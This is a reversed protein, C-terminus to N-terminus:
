KLDKKNAPRYQKKQASEILMEVIKGKNNVFKYKQKNAKTKGGPILVIEKTSDNNEPENSEEDIEIIDDIEITPRDHGYVKKYIQNYIDDKIDDIDGIFKRFLEDTYFQIIDGDLGDAMMQIFDPKGIKDKLEFKIKITYNRKFKKFMKIVEDEESTIQQIPQQVAQQQVPRPNAIPNPNLGQQSRYKIIKDKFPDNGTLEMQQQRIYEQESTLGNEDIQKLPKKTINKNMMEQIAQDDNIDIPKNGYGQNQIQEQTSHAANYNERMIQKQQELSMTGTQQQTQQQIQHTDSNEVELDKINDPIWGERRQPADIMGTTNVTKIKEFGEIPTITNFFDDANVSNSQSQTPQQPIIAQNQSEVVHTPEVDNSVYKQTFLQKDIKVGSDLVYQNETESMVKVVENTNINKFSGM